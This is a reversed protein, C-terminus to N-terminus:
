NYIIGIIWQLVNLYNTTASSNSYDSHAKIPQIFEFLQMLNLTYM